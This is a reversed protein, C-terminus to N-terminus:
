FGIRTNAPDEARLGAEIIRTNDAVLPAVRAFSAGHERSADAYGYQVVGAAAMADLMRFYAPGDVVADIYLHFHGPTRSPVLRCPMDIDIVPAHKQGGSFTGDDVLSSILNAEAEPVRVPQAFYEGQRVEDLNVVLAYTRKPTTM